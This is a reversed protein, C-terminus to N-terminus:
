RYAMRLPRGDSPTEQIHRGEPTEEPRFRFRLTRGDPHVSYPFARMVVWFITGDKYIEKRSM